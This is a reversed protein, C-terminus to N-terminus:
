RHIYAIDAASQQTWGRVLDAVVEGVSLIPGRIEDLLALAPFILQPTLPKGLGWTYVGFTTLVTAIPLM